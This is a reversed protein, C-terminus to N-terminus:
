PEPEDFTRMRGNYWDEFMTKRYPSISIGGPGGCLDFWASEADSLDAIFRGVPGTHVRAGNSTLHSIAVNVTFPGGAYSHQGMNLIPGLGPLRGLLHDPHVEQHKGLHWTAPHPGKQVLGSAIGKKFGKLLHEQLPGVQKEFSKRGKAEDGSLWHFIREVFKYHLSTNKRLRVPCSQLISHYFEELVLSLITPASEHSEYSGDWQKLVRCAAVEAQSLSSPGAQLEIWTVLNKSLKIMEPTCRDGQIRQMSEVTHSKEAKLLSEIRRARYEPYYASSRQGNKDPGNENATVVYGKSPNTVRTRESPDALKPKHPDTSAQALYCHGKERAWFRGAVHHGIDGGTTAFTWNWAFAGESIKNIAQVHADLETSLLAEHYGQAMTPLDTPVTRISLPHGNRSQLGPLLRGYEGTYMDRRQNKAFRVKYLQRQNELQITKDPTKYRNKGGAPIMETLWFPDRMVNTIGFALGPTRGTAMMPMGVFSFGSVRHGKVSISIPYWFSPMPNFPVHPDNAFLPAGSATKKGSVAWANSGGGLNPRSFSSLTKHGNNPPGHTMSPPIGMTPFLARLADTGYHAILGECLMSLDLAALDVTFGYFTPLSLADAVSYSRMPGIFLHEPALSSSRAGCTVGLSFSEYLAALDGHLNAANQEGIERHGLIRNFHDVDILELGGLRGSDEPFSINGLIETGRGSALHRLVDLQVARDLAQAVGWGYYAGIWTDADIFILGDERRRCRILSDDPGRLSFRRSWPLAVAGIKMNPFLRSSHDDKM